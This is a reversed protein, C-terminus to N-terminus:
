LEDILEKFTQLTKPTLKSSIKWFNIADKATKHLQKSQEGYDGSWNHIINAFNKPWRQFGTTNDRGVDSDLKYIWERGKDDLLHYHGFKSDYHTVKFNM